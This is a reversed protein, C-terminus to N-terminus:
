DSYNTSKMGRDQTLKDFSVLINTSIKVNNYSKPVPHENQLPQFYDLNRWECTVGIILFFIFFWTPKSIQSLWKLQNILRAQM